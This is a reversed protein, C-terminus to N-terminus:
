CLCPMRGGPQYSINRITNVRQFRHTYHAGREVSTSRHLFAALNM